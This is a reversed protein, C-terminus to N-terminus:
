MAKPMAGTVAQQRQATAFFRAALRALLAMIVSTAILLAGVLGSAERRRVASFVRGLRQEIPSRWSQAPLRERVPQSTTAPSGRELSNSSHPSLEPAISNLWLRLEAGASARRTRTPAPWIRAPSALHAISTGEM